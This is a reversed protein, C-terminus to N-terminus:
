DIAICCTSSASVCRPTTRGTLRLCSPHPMTLPRQVNTSHISNGLSQSWSRKWETLAAADADAEADTTTTTDSVTKDVRTLQGDSGLLLVFLSGDGTNTEGHSVLTGGISPVVVVSDDGNFKRIGWKNRPDNDNNPQNTASALVILVSFVTLLCLLACCPLLRLVSKTM